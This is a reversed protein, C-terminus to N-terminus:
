TVGEFQQDCMRRYIGGREYLEAHTGRETIRGEELVLIQDAHAVSSVRHAIIFNTRGEAVQKMTERILRETESDVAATADDMILVSPDLLVARAIAVRQAQGGSLTEGREGIVTDYGDELGLIFEHAQAARAAAQIADLPADPEGYAINERVPASFLFTDQFIIGVDQRLEELRIDRVDTGNILVRGEDPDHFRPILSILTSKGSGTHGVIAVTEGPRVDFSVHHLVPKEPEYGFSVNEFAVASGTGETSPPLPEAGPKSRISPEEDLVEFVRESAAAARQYTDVLRMVTRLRRQIPQMVSFCFFIDGVEVHGALAQFGGYLIALPMVLGFVFNPGVMRVVWYEIADIVKTVFTGSREGFKEEERSEQAFARVVRAGAINEQITTTVDGYADRSERWIKRVKMGLRVTLFVAFPLPALAVLALKWNIWLLMVVAGLVFIAMDATGFVGFYIFRAMRQVDATSRSILDGSTTQKHFTLSHRQVAAYIRSRLRNSIRTGLEMRSISQAFRLLNHILYTLLILVAFPWPNLPGPKAWGQFYNIAMRIYNHPLLEAAATIIAIFLTVAALPWEYRYEAFLRRLVAPSM